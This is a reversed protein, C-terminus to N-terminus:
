NQGMLDDISIPFYEFEINDIRINLNQLLMLVFFGDCFLVMNIVAFM